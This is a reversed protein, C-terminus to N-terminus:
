LGKPADINEISDLLFEDFFPEIVASETEPMLIMDSEDISKWGAISSGDFMKGEKLMEKDVVSAPVTVHQAKGITDCFRLDVFKVDHEKILKLVNDSSM